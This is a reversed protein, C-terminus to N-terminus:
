CARLLNTLRQYPFLCWYGHVYSNSATGNASESHSFIYVRQGCFQLDRLRLPLVFSNCMNWSVYELISFSNHHLLGIFSCICEDTEPSCVNILSLITTELLIKSVSDADLADALPYCCLFVVKSYHKVTPLSSLNGIKYCTRHKQRSLWVCVSAM